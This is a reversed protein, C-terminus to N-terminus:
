KGQLYINIVNIADNKNVVGNYDLDYISRDLTTTKGEVCKSILEVADKVTVEGDNNIDGRARTKITFPASNYHSETLWGYTYSYLKVNYETNLELNNPKINFVVRKEGGAPITVKQSVNGFYKGNYSIYAYITEDQCGYPSSLIASVSIKDLTPKETFELQKTVFIPAYNETVEIDVSNIIGKECKMLEIRGTKNDIYAAQATFKGTSMINRSQIIMRAYSWGPEFDTKQSIVFQQKGTTKNTLLIGITDSITESSCNIFGEYNDTGFEVSENKGVTKKDVKLNGGIEMVKYSDSSFSHTFLPIEKSGSNSSVYSVRVEGEEYWQWTYSFKESLTYTSGKAISIKKRNEAFLSAKNNNVGYFRFVLEGNFNSYENVIKDEVQLSNYALLKANSKTSYLISSSGSNSNVFNFNITRNSNEVISNVEKGLLYSGDLNPYYLTAAPKTSNSFNKRGKPYFDGEIDAYYEYYSTRVVTSNDAPMLKCYEHTQDNSNNIAGNNLVNIDADIHWILMGHGVIGSDFGTKQRNELLYYENYYGDNRLLYFDGGESLPRLNSIQQSTTLEIPSQWGLLMRGYCMISAPVTGDMNHVGIGMLDYRSTGAWVGNGDYLDPLSLCHAFEHCLTGIGDIIEKNGSGMRTEPSCAYDSILVGDLICDMHEITSMHAWITNEDGGSSQSMGAYLLCIHDATGDNDWDYKSFDVNKDALMVAEKAFERALDYDNGGEPKDKGYSAYPKSLTVTSAVDFIPEFQGNSQKMFYERVSGNPSWEGKYGITNCFDSIIKTDKLVTFKKDAFQVPILLVHKTGVVQNKAFYDKKQIKRRSSQAELHMKQRMDEMTIEVYKEGSKAYLKETEEDYYCIFNENGMVALEKVSGDPLLISKKMGPAIPEALCNLCFAFLLTIIVSFAKMKMTLTNLINHNTM